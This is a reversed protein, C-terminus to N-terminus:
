ADHCGELVTGVGREEDDIHLVADNFISMVAVRDDRVDSVEDLRSPPFVNGSDPDLV